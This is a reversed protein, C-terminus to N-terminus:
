IKPSAVSFATSNRLTSHIIARGSFALGSETNSRRRLAIDFRIPRISSQASISQQLVRVYSRVTYKSRGRSRHRFITTLVDTQRHRDALIDGYGCARDKDIKRHTNGISTGLPLPLKPIKRGMSLANYLLANEVWVFIASGISIGNPTIVRTPRTYWTNSPSGIGLPSPCNEPFVYRRLTFYYSV